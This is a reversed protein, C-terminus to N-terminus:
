VFLVTIILSFAGSLVVVNTIVGVFYSYSSVAVPVRITTTHKIDKSTYMREFSSGTSNKAFKAISPVLTDRYGSSDDSPERYRLHIPLELSYNHEEKESYVLIAHGSSRNSSSEVDIYANSSEFEIELYRLQDLDVYWFRPLAVLYAVKCKMGANTTSMHITRHAGEGVVNALNSTDINRILLYSDKRERRFGEAAIKFPVKVVDCREDNNSCLKLVESQTEFTKFWDVQADDNAIGRSLRLATAFIILLQRFM